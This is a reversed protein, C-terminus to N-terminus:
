RALRSRRAGYRSYIVLGVALWVGFRWWNTSPLGAILALCSLAALVPTLPYGPCRFPRAREPERIRLAIVGLAVLLFAFLTGINTLELAQDQTLFTPMLGVFIGTLITGLAPTRFRSHVRAFAAPLLGDRAMAYLIRPQGLQFVLLVATVAIVAGLSMVTAIGGLGAVRLARSLPDGTALLEYPVLGTMVASVAVYVVTCIVLSWLMGRPLDRQPVRAEEGLTSVADFGIYSFFALSAGTWVGRFGHPAFPHWHAPQVYAAGVGVFGVVLVLKFLVMAANLRASERVGRVLVITLAAVILLAPLNFGVVLAGFPTHLVPAVARLAPDHAVTQLDTAMWAPFDVGFAGLLFSRLYDAWSQAVYINGVAYEIILDWGIIWAFIEGLAVYSYTYASGAVPVMSAIEAYCLACLGCAVATLLYSLVLAPGAGAHQASGAAMEGVSSFIGAGVIAGVGMLTLDFAGLSRRLGRGEGDGGESAAADAPKRRLLQALTV